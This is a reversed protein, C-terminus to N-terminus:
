LDWLIDKIFLSDGYSISSFLIMIILNNAKGYKEDSLFLKGLLITSHKISYEILINYPPYYKPNPIHIYSKRRSNSIHVWPFLSWLSSHWSWIMIELSIEFYQSEEM